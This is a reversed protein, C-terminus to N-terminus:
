EKEKVEEQPLEEKLIGTYHQVLVTMNDYELSLQNRRNNLHQLQALAVKGKDSLKSEDYEKEDFTFM